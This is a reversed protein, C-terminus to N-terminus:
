ITSVCGFIELDMRALYSNSTLHYKILGGFMGLGELLLQKSSIVCILKKPHTMGLNPISLHPAAKKAPAITASVINVLRCILAKDFANSQDLASIAPVSWICWSAVSSLMPCLSPTRLTIFCMKSSKSETCLVLQAGIHVVHRPTPSPVRRTTARHVSHSPHTLLTQHPDSPIPPARTAPM